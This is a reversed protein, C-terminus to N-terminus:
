AAASSHLQEREMLWARAAAVTSFIGNQASGVGSQGSVQQPQAHSRRLMATSCVATKDTPLRTFARRRTVVYDIVDAMQTGHETADVILRLRGATRRAEVIRAELEDSYRAAIALTWYGRLRARLIGTGPDFEFSYFM